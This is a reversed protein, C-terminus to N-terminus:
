GKIVTSIPPGITAPYIASHVHGGISHMTYNHNHEIPEVTVRLTLGVKLGEEQIMQQLRQINAYMIKQELKDNRPPYQDRANDIWDRGGHGRCVPCLESLGRPRYPIIQRGQCERCRHWAEKDCDM